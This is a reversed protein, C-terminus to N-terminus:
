YEQVMIYYYVFFKTKLHEGSSNNGEILNDYKITENVIKSNKKLMYFLESLM